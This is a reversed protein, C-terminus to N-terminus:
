PGTEAERSRGLRTAIERKLSERLEEIGVHDLIGGAFASVLIERAQEEGIGRARLYFLADRDLRGITAGHTCRVDDAHIELRPRTHITANESLLLNKNSQRADTRQARLRVIVRGDFVATSNGTLIGRYDENSSCGAVAHDVETHQDAHREGDTLYLGHLDAEAGEGALVIGLDLRSLAAGLAFNSTSLRSNRDQRVALRGMHFAEDTEQQVRYHEVESDEGLVIETVANTLYVAERGPGTYTEQLTLRSGKGCIVLTRPHCAVPRAAGSSLFLLHLPEELVTDEPLFLAAGDRLLATNLATFPHDEFVANRGLYDELDVPPAHLWDALNGALAGEPLSRTSSLRRDLRGDLFVLRHAGPDAVPAPLEVTPATSGADDRPAAFPTRAIPVVSTHKWAELRSTPLGLDDYRRLARDRM